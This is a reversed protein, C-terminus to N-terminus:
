KGNRKAVMVRRFFYLMISGLIAGILGGTANTFIDTLEFVGTKTIKQMCEIFFSFVFSMLLTMVVGRLFSDSKRVFRVLVGYPVFLAVNLLAYIFLRVNFYSGRLSGLVIYPVIKGSKSGPERRFITIILVIGIYVLAFYSILVDKWSYENKRCVMIYGPIIVVLAAFLFALLIHYVYVGSLQEIFM